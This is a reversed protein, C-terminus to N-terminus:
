YDYDEAEFKDPNHILGLKRMKDVFHAGDERVQSGDDITTDFPDSTYISDCESVDIFWELIHQGLGLGKFDVPCFMYILKFTNKWYQQDEESLSDNYFTFQGDIKKELNDGAYFFIDAREGDYEMQLTITKSNGLSLTQYEGNPSEGSKIIERM